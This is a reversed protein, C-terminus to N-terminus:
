PTTKKAFQKRPSGSDAGFPYPPFEYLLHVVKSNGGKDLIGGLLLLISGSHGFRPATTMKGLYKKGFRMLALSPAKKWRLKGGLRFHCM